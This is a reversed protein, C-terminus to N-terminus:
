YGACEALAKKLKANEEIVEIAMDVVSVDVSLFDGAVCSPFTDNQWKIILARIENLERKAEDNTM